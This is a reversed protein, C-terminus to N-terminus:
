FFNINPISVSHKAKLLVLSQYTRQHPRSVQVCDTQICLARSDRAKQEGGYTIAANRKAFACFSAESILTLYIMAPAARVSELGRRGCWFVFVAM